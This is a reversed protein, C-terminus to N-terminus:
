VMRPATRGVIHTARFHGDMWGSVRRYAPYHANFDKREDKWNKKFPSLSLFNESFLRFLKFSYLGHKL